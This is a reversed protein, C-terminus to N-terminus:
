GNLVYIRELCVEEASRKILKAEVRLSPDTKRLIAQVAPIALNVCLGSQLHGCDVHVDLLAEYFPCRGIMFTASDGERDHIKVHAGADGMFTKYAEIGSDLPGSGESIKRRIEKEIVEAQKEVAQMLIQLGRDSGMEDVAKMVLLFSLAYARRLGDFYNGGVSSDSSM